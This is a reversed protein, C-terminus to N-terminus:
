IETSKLIIWPSNKNERTAEYGIPIELVDSISKDKDLIEGLSVLMLVKNSIDNEASTFQWSGDEFHFVYLIPSNKKIVYTTTFVALNM